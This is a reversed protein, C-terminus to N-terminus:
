DLRIKRNEFLSKFAYITAIIWFLITPVSIIITTYFGLANLAITNISLGIVTIFSGYPDFDKLASRNKIVRRALLLTGTLYSINALSFLLEITM